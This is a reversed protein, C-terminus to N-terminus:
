RAAWPLPPRGGRVLMAERGWQGRGPCSARLGRRGAWKGRRWPAGGGRQGPVRAGSGPSGTGLGEVRRRTLLGPPCPPQPGLSAPGLPSPPPPPRPAARTEWRKEQGLRLRPPRSREREVKEEQKMSGHAQTPAGSLLPGAPPGSARRPRPPAFFAPPRASSSAAPRRHRCPLVALPIGRAAPPSLRAPVRTRWYGLLWRLCHPLPPLIYPTRWHVM